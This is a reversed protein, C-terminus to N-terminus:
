VRRIKWRISQEKRIEKAPKKEEHSKKFNFDSLFVSIPNREEKEISVGKTIEDM